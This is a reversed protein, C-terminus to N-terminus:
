APFLRILDIQNHKLVDLFAGMRRPTDFTPATEFVIGLSEGQGDFAEVKDSLTKYAGPVSPTSPAASTSPAPIPGSTSFATESRPMSGHRARSSLSAWENKAAIPAWTM